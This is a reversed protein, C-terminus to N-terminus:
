HTTFLLSALLPNLQNVTLRGDLKKQVLYRSLDSGIIRSM